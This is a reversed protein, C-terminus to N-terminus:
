KETVYVSDPPSDFLPLLTAVGYPEGRPWAVVHHPGCAGVSMARRGIFHRGRSFGLCGLRWGHFTECGGDDDARTRSPESARGPVRGSLPIMVPPSKMVM